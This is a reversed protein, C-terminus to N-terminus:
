GGDGQNMWRIIRALEESRALTQAREEEALRAAEDTLDDGGAGPTPAGGGASGRGETGGGDDGGEDSWTFGEPPRGNRFRVKLARLLDDPDDDELSTGSNVVFGARSHIVFISTPRVLRPTGLADRASEGGEFRERGKFVLYVIWQPVRVLHVIDEGGQNKQLWRELAASQSSDPHLEILQLHGRAVRTLAHGCPRTPGGDADMQCLHHLYLDEFRAAEPLPKPDSDDTFWGADLDWIRFTEFIATGPETSGWPVQGAVGALDAEGWPHDFNPM